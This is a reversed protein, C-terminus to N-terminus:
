NAPPSLCTAQHNNAELLILQTYRSQAPYGRGRLSTGMVVDGYAELAWRALLRHYVPPSPSNARIGSAAPPAAGPLCWTTRPRPTPHQFLRPPRGRARALAAAARLPARPAGVGGRVGTRPTAADPPGMAGHRCPTSTRRRPRRTMCTHPPGGAAAPFGGDHTSVCPLKPPYCRTM